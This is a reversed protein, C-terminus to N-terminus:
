KLPLNFYEACTAIFRRVNEEAERESRKIKELILPRTEIAFDINEEGYAIGYRDTADPLWEELSKGKVPIIIPVCGCMAAYALYATYDDYSYFYKCENFVKAVREHPLGDICVANEILASDIDERSAGKRVCYAIGERGEIPNYQRYVDERYNQICLMNHKVDEGMYAPDFYVWHYLFVLDSPSVGGGQGFADPKNLMWRVVNRAGLPNGTEIDPYIVVCDVVESPDMVIPADFRGGGYRGLAAAMRRGFRQVCSIGPPIHRLWIKADQRHKRLMHCLKYLAVVGGVDDNYSPTYIIFRM